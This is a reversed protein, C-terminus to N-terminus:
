DDSLFSQGFKDIEVRFSEGDSLHLTISEISTAEEDEIPVMLYLPEPLDHSLSIYMAVHARDRRTIAKCRVFIAEEPQQDTPM